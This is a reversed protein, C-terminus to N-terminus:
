ISLGLTEPLFTLCLRTTPKTNGVDYEEKRTSPITIVPALEINLSPNSDQYGPPPPTYERYYVDRPSQGRFPVKKLPLSKHFLLSKM